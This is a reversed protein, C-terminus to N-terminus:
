SGDLEDLIGVRQQDIPLHEWHYRIWGDLFSVSGGIRVHTAKMWSSKVTVSKVPPKPKDALVLTGVGSGPRPPIIDVIVHRKVRAEGTSRHSYQIADGKKPM